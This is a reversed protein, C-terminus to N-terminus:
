HTHAHVRSHKRTNTHASIDKLLLEQTHDGRFSMWQWMVTISLILGTSNQATLSDESSPLRTSELGTGAVHPGSVAGARNRQPVPSIDIVCVGAALSLNTQSSLQKGNLCSSVCTQYVLHWTNSSQLYTVNLTPVMWKNSDCDCLCVCPCVSVCVCGPTYQITYPPHKKLRGRWVGRHYVKDCM